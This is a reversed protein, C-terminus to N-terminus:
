CGGFDNSKKKLGAGVGVDRIGLPYYGYKVGYVIASVGMKKEASEKSRSWIQCDSM